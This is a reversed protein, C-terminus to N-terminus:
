PMQKLMGTSSYACLIALFPEKDYFELNKLVFDEGQMLSLTPCVEKNWECSQNHEAVNIMLMAFQYDTM